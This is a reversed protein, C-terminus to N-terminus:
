SFTNYPLTLWIISISADMSQYYDIIQYLQVASFLIERNDLNPDLCFDLYWYLSWRTPRSVIPMSSWCILFYSLQFGQKVRYIQFFSKVHQLRIHFGLRWFPRPFIISGGIHWSPESSHNVSSQWHLWPSKFLGSM